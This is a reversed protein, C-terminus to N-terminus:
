SNAKRLTERPPLSSGFINQRGREKLACKIV